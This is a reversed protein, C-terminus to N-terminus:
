APRRKKGTLRSVKSKTDIGLAPLKAIGAAVENPLLQAYHKRTVRSDSHGLAKAVLEIDKTALLLLKGYTARLAKFSLDELEAKKVADRMPRHQSSPEWAGGDARTFMVDTAKRGASTAEFFRAGEPTLAQRLTKGTKHQHIRVTETENDFDRVRLSTLESYRAGTMLAATVLQRFDPACVNLLRKIEDQDLMRPIPDDGLAFPKVRKWFDPLSDPLKGNDRAWSLAAKAITLVRNATARRARVDDPNNRDFPMEKGRNVAPKNAIGAHWDALADKDLSGVLKAGITERAYRGWAKDTNYIGGKTMLRGTRGGPKTKRWEFWGDFVDNLTRGHGYHRPIPARLEVQVSQARKCAQAYSLVVDDDPESTDDPTGIRQATYGGSANRQRAVWSAGRAGKAYGLFTGPVIQRWYPEKRAKLKARADRTELRFDRPKRAM